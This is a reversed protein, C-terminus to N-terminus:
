PQDPTKGERTTFIFISGASTRVVVMQMNWRYGPWRAPTSLWAMQNADVALGVVMLMDM